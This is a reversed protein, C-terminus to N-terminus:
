GDSWVHWERSFCSALARFRDIGCRVCCGPCRRSFSRNGAIRFHPPFVVSLRRRCRFSSHPPARVARWLLRRLPSCSRQSRFREAVGAAYAVLGASKHRLVPRGRAWCEHQSLVGVRVPLHQLEPSLFLHHPLLLQLLLLLLLLDVTVLTVKLDASTDADWNKKFISLTLPNFPFNSYNEESGIM